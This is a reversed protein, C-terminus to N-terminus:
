VGEILLAFDGGESTTLLTTQPQMAFITTHMHQSGKLSAYVTADAKSTCASHAIVLSSLQQTSTTDCVSHPLDVAEVLSVSGQLSSCKSFTSHSDCGVAKLKSKDQGCRLCKFSLTTCNHPCCQRIESGHCQPRIHMSQSQLAVAANMVLATCITLGVHQIM